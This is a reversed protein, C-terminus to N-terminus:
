DKEVWRIIGVWFEIFGMLFLIAILYGVISWGFIIIPDLVPWEIKLFDVVLNFSYPIFFASTGAVYGYCMMAMSFYIPCEESLLDVILNWLQEHPYLNQTTIKEMM